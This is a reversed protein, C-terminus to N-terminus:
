KRKLHNVLRKGGGDVMFCNNTGVSENMKAMQKVWYSPCLQILYKLYPYGYLGESTGGDEEEEFLKYDIGRIGNDKYEEKEDIINDKVCTWVIEGGKPHPFSLSFERNILVEKEKLYVEWRLAHIKKKNDGEEAVDRWHDERIEYWRIDEEDNLEPDREEAVQEESMYTSIDTVYCLCYFVSLYVGKGFM